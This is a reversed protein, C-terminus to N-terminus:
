NASELKEVLLDLKSEISQLAIAQYEQHTLLVREGYPLFAKIAEGAHRSDVEPSFWSAEGLDIAPLTLLQFYDSTIPLGHKIRISCLEALRRAADKRSKEVHLQVQPQECGIASLLEQDVEEIAIGSAIWRLDETLEFLECEATQDVDTFEFVHDMWDYLQGWTEIVAFLCSALATRECDEECEWISSPATQPIDAGLALLEDLVHWFYIEPADASLDRLSDGWEMDEWIAFFYSYWADANKESGAFMAWEASVTDFLGALKLLQTQRESPLYEGNKWKTIQARSVGLERALDAQSYIKRTTIYEILNERSRKTM